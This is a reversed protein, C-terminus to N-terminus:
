GTGPTKGKDAGGRKKVARSGLPPRFELAITIANLTKEQMRIVHAESRDLNQIEAGFPDHLPSQDGLALSAYAHEVDQVSVRGLRQKIVAFLARVRQADWLAEGWVRLAPVNAPLHEVVHQHGRTAAAVLLIVDSASWRVTDADSALRDLLAKVYNLETDSTRPPVADIGVAQNQTELISKFWAAAYAAGVRRHRWTLSALQDVLEQVVYNASPFTKRM